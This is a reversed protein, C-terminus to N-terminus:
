RLITSPALDIVSNKRLESSTPSSRSRDRSWLGIRASGSNHPIQEIGVHDGFPRDVIAAAEDRSVLGVEAICAGAYHVWPPALVTHLRISEVVVIM